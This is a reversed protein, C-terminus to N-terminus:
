RFPGEGPPLYVETALEVGDRTPAQEIRCTVGNSDGSQASQAPAAGAMGAFALVLGAAVSAIMRETVRQTEM